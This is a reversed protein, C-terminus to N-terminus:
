GLLPYHSAVTMFFLMPLSLWANTKAALLSLQMMRAAQPPANGEATWNVLRKQFRWIVGWVSLMMFWGLGGGLGIALVRNTEWGQSNIQLFAYGAGIVLAATIIGLVPGRHLVEVPAMLVGMYVVFALTWLLFFSWIVNSHLAGAARRDIGIEMMWLGLGFFVTYVSSWRFWWLARRMLPPSAQRRTEPPLAAQWPVGVLVFFYGLGVWIIASLIHLWRLVILVNAIGGAFGMVPAAMAVPILIMAQVENHFRFPIMLGAVSLYDGMFDYTYLELM